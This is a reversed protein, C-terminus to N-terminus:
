EHTGHWVNKQLLVYNGFWAHTIIIILENLGVDIWNLYNYDNTYYYIWELDLTLNMIKIKMVLYKDHLNILIEKECNVQILKMFNM